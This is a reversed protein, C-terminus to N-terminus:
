IHSFCPMLLCISVRAILMEGLTHCVSGNVLKRVCRYYHATIVSDRRLGWLLHMFFTEDDMCAYQLFIVQDYYVFSVQVQESLTLRIIVPSRIVETVQGHTCTYTDVRAYTCYTHQLDYAPYLQLHHQFLIVAWRNNITELVIIQYSQPELLFGTWKMCHSLTIRNLLLCYQSVELSNCEILSKILLNHPIM